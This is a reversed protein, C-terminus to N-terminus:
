CSSVTKQWLEVLRNNSKNLETRLQEVEEKTSQLETRLVMAEEELMQLVNRLQTMEATFSEIEEEYSYDERSPTPSKSALIPLPPTVLFTGNMDRLSM